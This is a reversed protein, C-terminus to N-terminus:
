PSPPPPPPECALRIAELVARLDGAVDANSFRLMRYGRQVLAATRAEDYATQSKEAHSDGDIEICLRARACYFDVIFRGLLPQQRRIAVGLQGNRM